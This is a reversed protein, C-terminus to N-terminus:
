DHLRPFSKVSIFDLDYISMESRSTGSIWNTINNNMMVATVQGSFAAVINPLSTFSGGMILNFSISGNTLKYPILIGGPMGSIPICINLGDTDFMSVIGSGGPMNGLRSQVITCVEDSGEALIILETSRLPADIDERMTM